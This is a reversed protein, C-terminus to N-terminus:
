EKIRAALLEFQRRSLPKYNGLYAALVHFSYTASLSM